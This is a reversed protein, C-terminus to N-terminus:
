LGFFALISLYLVLNSSIFSVIPQSVDDVGNDNELMNYYKLASNVHGLTMFTDAVETVLDAHDHAISQLVSCFVQLVNLFIWLCSLLIVYWIWVDLMNCELHMGRFGQIEIIHLFVLIWVALYEFLGWVKDFKGCRCPQQCMYSLIFDWYISIHCVVHVKM